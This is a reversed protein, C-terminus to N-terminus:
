KYSEHVIVFLLSNKIPRREIYPLGINGGKEKVQDIGSMMQMSLKTTWILSLGDESDSAEAKQGGLEDEDIELASGLECIAQYNKPKAQTFVEICSFRFFESGRNRDGIHTWGVYRM